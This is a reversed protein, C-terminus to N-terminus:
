EDKDGYIFENYDGLFLLIKTLVEKTIEKLKLIIKKV